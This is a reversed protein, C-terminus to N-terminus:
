LVFSVALTLFLGLSLMDSLGSLLLGAAMAPNVGLKRLILPMAAGLFGSLMCALAMSATTLFALSLAEAQGTNRVAVIWMGFGALTGALLGNLLGLWTEKIVQRRVPRANNLLSLGRLTCALAQSGITRCLGALIPLFIVLVTLRAIEDQFKAVIAGVVFLMFLHIQLWPQRLFLKRSWPSAWQEDQDVGVLYGPQGSLEFAHQQHLQHTHV